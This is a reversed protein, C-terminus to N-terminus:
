IKEQLKITFKAGFYEKDEHIFKENEAFISGKLTNTIVQQTIYLGIGSDISLTKTTFYLKFIDNIFDENIGNANDKIEIILQNDNKYCDIFIFKNILSDLESLADIANNIIHILILILQDELSVIEINTINKIIKIKKSLLEVNLIKLTQEFTKSINFKENKNNQPNLFNRFDYITSSLNQSSNNILDMALILEEDQLIGMEKKLKIGTSAITIISLTQRWQNTIDGIIHGISSMKSQQYLLKDKKNQENELKIRFNFLKIKIIKLVYISILSLILIIFILSITMDREFPLDFYIFYSVYLTSFFIIFFFPIYRIVNLIFKEDM